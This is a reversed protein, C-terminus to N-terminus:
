EVLLSISGKSKRYQGLAPTNNVLTTSPPRVNDLLPDIDHTQQSIDRKFFYMTKCVYETELCVDDYRNHTTDM